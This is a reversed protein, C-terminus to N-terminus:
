LLNGFEESLTTVDKRQDDNITSFRSIKNYISHNCLSGDLHTLNCPFERFPTPFHRKLQKNASPYISLTFQTVFLQSSMDRVGKRSNGQLEM